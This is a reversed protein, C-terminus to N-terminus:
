MSTVLHDPTEMTVEMMVERVKVVVKENKTM